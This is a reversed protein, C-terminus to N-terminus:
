PSSSPTVAPAFPPLLQFKEVRNSSADAVYVNGSGDFVIGFPFAIQGDGSGPPGFSALFSGDPGFIQIQDSTATTGGGVFLRGDADVAASLPQDGFQGPGIGKSGFKALVAGSPDLKEVRAGVRFTSTYVNGQDDVAFAAASEYGFPADPYATISDLVTGNADYREVVGLVQTATSGPVNRKDDIVYVVGEPDVALGVPDIFEGADSGFSGWSKVFKRGKDFHEVRHNGVDLVYFSGDPAFAIAGFGDGNSRDLIFEGVGTGRHEWYEVFTGDPEFVAFQSNGTDAVWLRGESDLAMDGPFDMGSPDGTASWLFEVPSPGSPSSTATPTPVSTSASPPPTTPAPSPSATPRQATPTAAVPSTSPVPSGCATLSLGVLLVAFRVARDPSLLIM